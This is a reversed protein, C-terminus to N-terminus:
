QPQIELVELPLGRKEAERITHATGRSGGNWFAYVQDPNEDLMKLNRVIGANAGFMKWDPEYVEVELGREKALVGALKDAGRANGHMVVCDDPLGDIVAKIPGEDVWERSGCILVKMRQEWEHYTRQSPM